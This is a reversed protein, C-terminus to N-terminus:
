DALDVAVPAQSPMQAPVKAKPVNLEFLAMGLMTGAALIAVMLGISMRRWFIAKRRFEQSLESVTIGTALLTEILEKGEQASKEHARRLEDVEKELEETTTLLVSEGFYVDGDIDISRPKQQKVAKIFASAVRERENELRGEFSSPMKPQEDKVIKIKVVSDDEKVKAASKAKRDAPKREAPKKSGPLFHGKADRKPMAKKPEAGGTTRKESM